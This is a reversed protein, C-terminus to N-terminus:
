GVPIRTNVLFRGNGRCWDKQSASSETMKVRSPTCLFQKLTCLFQKLIFGHM